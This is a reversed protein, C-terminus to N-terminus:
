ILDLYSLNINIQVMSVPHLMGADQKIGSVICDITKERLNDNSNIATQVAEILDSTIDLYEESHKQKAYLYVTITSEVRMRTNSINERNVYSTDYVVAASPYSKIKTWVPAINPYVEKFLNTDEVAQIVDYLLDKRM